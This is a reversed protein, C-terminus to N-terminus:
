TVPEFSSKKKVEKKEVVKLFKVGAMRRRPQDGRKRLSGAEGM